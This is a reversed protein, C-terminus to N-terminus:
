SLFVVNLRSSLSWLQFHLCKEMKRNEGEMDLWVLFISFVSELGPLFRSGTALRIREIHRRLRPAARSRLGATRQATDARRPASRGPSRRRSWPPRRRGRGLRAPPRATPNRRRRRARWRCSERGPPSSRRTRGWRLSRRFLRAPWSEPSLRESKIKPYIQFGNRWMKEEICFPFTKRKKQKKLRKVCINSSVSFVLVM